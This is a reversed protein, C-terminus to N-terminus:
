AEKRKSKVPQQQGYTSHGKLTNANGNQGCSTSYLTNYTWKKIWHDGFRVCSEVNLWGNGKKKFEM